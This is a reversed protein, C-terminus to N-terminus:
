GWPTLMNIIEVEGKWVRAVSTTRTGIVMGRLSEAPDMVPCKAVETRYPITVLVSKLV